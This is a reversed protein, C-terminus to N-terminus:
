TKQAILIIAHAYDLGMIRYLVKAFPVRFLNLIYKIVSKSKINIFQKYVEINNKFGVQKIIGILDHIPYPRIHTVDVSWFYNPHGPNPTTIVLYGGDNLLYYVHTLYKLVTELPLHEIVELIFICDYKSDVSLLDKYDANVSPDPDITNYLTINYGLQTLADNVPFLGSGVDLVSNINHIKRKLLKGIPSKNVARGKLFRWDNNVEINKVTISSSFFAEKMEWYKDFITKNYTNM